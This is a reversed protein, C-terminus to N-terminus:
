AVVRPFGPQSVRELWPIAGLREFTTRAEALLAEAARGSGLAEAQEVQAVALWFPLSMSRFRAAADALGGPDGAMRARIRIAHAELFPPRQAPPLEEFLALLAEAKASDGLALAAELADVV